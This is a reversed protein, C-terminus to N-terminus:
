KLFVLFVACVLLVMALCHNWQLKFDSFLLTSMLVFVVLTIIEQMVKLHMLTYPGGRGAFGIRNAPVMFCYEFLAVGWSLLIIAFIPWRSTVGMQDLKLNGYWAFYMFINSIVLLLITSIYPNM